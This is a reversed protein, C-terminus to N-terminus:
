RYIPSIIAVPLKSIQGEKEQAQPAGDTWVYAGMGQRLNSYNGSGAFQTEPIDHPVTLVSKAGQGLKVEIEARKEGIKVVTGFSCVLNADFAM